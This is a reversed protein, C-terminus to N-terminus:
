QTIQRLACTSPIGLHQRVEDLARDTQFVFDLTTSHIDLGSIVSFVKDDVSCFLAYRETDPLASGDLQYRPM